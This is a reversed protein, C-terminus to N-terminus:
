LSMSPHYYMYYHIHNLPIPHPTTKKKMYINIIKM